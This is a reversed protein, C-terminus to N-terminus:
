SAVLWYAAGASNATGVTFSSPMSSQGGVTIAARHGKITPIHLGSGFFTGGIKPDGGSMQCLVGVYYSTADAAAYPTGLAAEVYTGSNAGNSLASSMDGTVALQVGAESFLAMSNVGSPTVGATGLWLGLNTITAAGPRILALILFGATLGLGIDSVAEVPFPEALLGLKAAYPDRSSPPAGWAAATPSTAIPVNGAAPTGTIAIGNVKAVSPNPYSGGLDGGAAGNPPLAAPIRADIIARVNTTSALLPAPYTSGTLDGGAAGSPPGGGPTLWTGAGSLFETTINPPAAVAIGDLTFTGGVALNGGIALNAPLPPATIGSLTTRLTGTWFPGGTPVVIWYTGSSGAAAEVIRWATQAAGGALQIQANPTLQASWTGDTNVPVSLTSLIEGQGTVDFGITPKDNYDVLVAVVTANAPLVAAPSTLKGNVVTV